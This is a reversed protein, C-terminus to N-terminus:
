RQHFDSIEAMVLVYYSCFQIWLDYTGLLHLITVLSLYWAHTDSAGGFSQILDGFLVTMLPLALGNGLAGLSGLVILIVDMSDAFSFLRYFPVPFKTEDHNKNKGRAELERKDSSSAVPEHSASNSSSASM